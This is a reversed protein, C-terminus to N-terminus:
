HRSERLRRIERRSMERTLLEDTVVPTYNGREPRVAGDTTAVLPIFRRQEIGNKRLDGQLADLGYWYFFADVGCKVGEEVGAIGLPTSPLVDDGEGVFLHGGRRFVYRAMSGDKHEVTIHRSRLRYLSDMGESDDDEVIRVVRGRRMAYVTDGYQMEFFLGAERRTGDKRSSFRRGIGVPRGAAAPARYVFATDVPPDIRGLFSRYSSYNFRIPRAPDAPRLSMVRVYPLNGSYPVEYRHIGPTDSCNELRSFDILVTLTGCYPEADEYYLYFDCCNDKQREVRLKPRLGSQAALTGCVFLLPMLLLM